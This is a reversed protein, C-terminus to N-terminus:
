QQGAVDHSTGVRARGAAVSMAGPQLGVPTRASVTYLDFRRNEVTTDTGTGAITCQTEPEMGGHVHGATNSVAVLKGDVVSILSYYDEQIVCDSLAFTVGTVGQVLYDALDIETTGGYATFVRYNAEGDFITDAMQARGQEPAALLVTTALLLASAARFMKYHRLVLSKM